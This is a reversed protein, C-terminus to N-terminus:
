DFFDQMNIQKAKNYGSVKFSKRHIGEITGYKNVAEVHHHNIYGNHKYFNYQPYKESYNLIINERYNKALISAAAVSASAADAKSLMFHPNLKKCPSQDLIYLNIDDININIKNCAANCADVMVQTNAWNIGHKDILEVSIESVAWTAAKQKILSDLKLRNKESLKKSDNLNNINTDNNFMVAAAVIPGAWCGRAVEDCGIIYAGHKLRLESDFNFLKNSQM